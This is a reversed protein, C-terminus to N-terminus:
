ENRSEMDIEPEGLGRGVISRSRDPSCPRPLATTEVATNPTEGFVDKGGCKQFARESRSWFSLWHPGIPLFRPALRVVRRGPRDREGSTVLAAPPETM